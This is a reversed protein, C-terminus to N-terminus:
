DIMAALTSGVALGTVEAIVISCGANADITATITPKTGVDGAPTDIAWLSLNGNTLAGTDALKIFNNGAGDKVTVTHATSAGGISVLAIIKSGSSLNAVTFTAAFTTTSNSSFSAVNTLPNPGWAM